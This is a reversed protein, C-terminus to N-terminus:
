DFTWRNGDKGFIQVTGNGIEMDHSQRANQHHSQLMYKSRATNVQLGVEMSTDILAQTNKEITVISGGLLNVDDDCSLLPSRM